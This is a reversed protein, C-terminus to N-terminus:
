YIYLYMCLEMFFPFSFIIFGSNYLFMSENKKLECVDKTEKDNLGYINM